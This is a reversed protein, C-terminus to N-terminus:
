RGTVFFLFEGEGELRGFLPTQANSSAISVKPRLYAGLETGTVVGDNNIDAEGEIARLFYRTFLGHGEREIVQEQQGGATIMQVTRMSGVKRLYGGIGPDLGGSRALGLGSYCADMVYLVHKASILNSLERIQEMSIATYSSNSIDGDVPIIYGKKAGKSMEETQGHGAFFIIVRDNRGVKRPLEDSLLSLIRRQTAEKDLLSIVQDFGSAELKDRVAKADTVAFELRPWKEYDNIGIVVVFSKEYLDGARPMSPKQAIRVVEPEHREVTVELRSANGLRDEASIVIRNEGVLLPTDKLFYGDEDLSAKWQNVRVWAIGSKDWVRGRVTINEAVCAMKEGPQLPPDFLAIKPGSTDRGGEIEEKLALAPPYDDRLSLSKVLHRHAEDLDQQRFLAEALVHYLKHNGSGLEAAKRLYGVAKANDGTKFYHHGVLEYPRIYGPCLETAEVLLSIREEQDASRYSKVFLAKAKDCDTFGEALSSTTVLCSGALLICLGVFLRITWSM